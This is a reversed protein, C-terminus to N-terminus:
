AALVVNTHLFLSLSGLFLETFIFLFEIWFVVVSTRWDFPFGVNFVQKRESGVFPVGLCCCINIFFTACTLVVAFRVFADLKQKVIAFQGQDEISHVCNRHLLELIENKKWLLYLLRVFTLLVIGASVILYISEDLNDCTFAGVILSVLFLLHFISYFFKFRTEKATAEDGSHWFRVQQLLEMLDNIRRHLQIKFM